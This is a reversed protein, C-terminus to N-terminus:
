IHLTKAILDDDNTADCLLVYKRLVLSCKCLILFLIEACRIMIPQKYILPHLNSDTYSEVNWVVLPHDSRHKTFYRTCRTKRAQTNFRLTFQMWINLGTHGLHLLTEYSAWCGFFQFWDTECPTLYITKDTGTFEALYM